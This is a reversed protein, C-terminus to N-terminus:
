VHKDVEDMLTGLDQEALAGDAERACVYPALTLRVALRVAEPYRYGENMLLTLQALFNKLVGLNTKRAFFGDQDRVFTNLAYVLEVAQDDDFISRYIPESVSRAPEDVEIILEVRRLFADDFDEAAQIFQQGMNTTFVVTLNKKLAVIKEGNFLKLVYHPEDALPTLGMARVVAASRVDLAGILVNLYNPRFRLAEDVLLFIRETQARRYAEALPGDVWEKGPYPGGVLDRDETGPSGAVTVIGVDEDVAAQLAMSSKLTATDGVLMGVGGTRILARLRQATPVRMDASGKGSQGFVESLATRGVPSLARPQEVVGQKAFTQVGYYLADCLRMMIDNAHSDNSLKILDTGSFPPVLGSTAMYESLLQIWVEGVEDDLGYGLASEALCLLYPNLSTTRGQWTRQKASASGIIVDCGGKSNRRRVTVSKSNPDHFVNVDGELMMVIAKLFGKGVRGQSKKNHRSTLHDPIASSNSLSPWSPVNQNTHFGARTISM